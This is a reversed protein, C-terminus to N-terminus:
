DEGGRASQTPPARPPPRWRPPSLRPVAPPRDVWTSVAALGNAALSAAYEAMAAVAPAPLPAVAAHDLFAWHATVPFHSRDM